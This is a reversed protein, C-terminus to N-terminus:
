GLKDLLEMKHISSPTPVEILAANAAINVFTPVDYDFIEGTENWHHFTRPIAGGYSATFMLRCGIAREIFGHVTVSTAGPPIALPTVNGESDAIFMTAVGSAMNAAPESVYMYATTKSGAALLTPPIGGTSTVGPLVVAAATGDSFMFGITDFFGSVGIVLGSICASDKFSIASVAQTQILSWGGSVPGAAVTTVTGDSGIAKLRNGASPALAVYNVFLYGTTSSAAVFACSSDSGSFSADVLVVREAYSYSGDDPNRIGSIAIVRDTSGVFGGHPNNIWSDLDSFCHAGDKTCISAAGFFSGAAPVNVAVYDLAGMRYILRQLGFAGTYAFVFADTYNALAADPPQGVPQVVDLLLGQTVSTLQLAGPAFTNNEYSVLFGEAKSAIVKSFFFYANCTQQLTGDSVVLHAFDNVLNAAVLKADEADFLGLPMLQLFSGVMDWQSPKQTKDVLELLGKDDKLFMVNSGTKITPSPTATGLSDGVIVQDKLKATGVTGFWTTLNKRDPAQDHIVFHWGSESKIRITDIWQAGSKYARVFVSSGSDVYVFHVGAPQCNAELQRKLIELKKRAFPLLYEGGPDIELHM